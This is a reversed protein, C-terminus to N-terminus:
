HFGKPVSQSQLNASVTDSCTPDLNLCAHVFCWQPGVDIYSNKKYMWLFVRSSESKTKNKLCREEKNKTKINEDTASNM